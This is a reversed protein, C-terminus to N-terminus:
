FGGRTYVIALCTTIQSSQYYYVFAWLMHLTCCRTYPCPVDHERCITSKMEQLDSTTDNSQLVTRM